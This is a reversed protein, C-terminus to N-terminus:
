NFSSGDKGDIGNIGNSGNIIMPKNILNNYDASFINVLLSYDIKINYASM